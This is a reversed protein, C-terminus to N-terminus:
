NLPTGAPPVYGDPLRRTSKDGLKAFLGFEVQDGLDPDIGAFVDRYLTYTAICCPAQNHNSM